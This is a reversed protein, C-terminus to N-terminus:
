SAPNFSQIVVGVFYSLIVVLTAVGVHESIIPLPKAKTIRAIYLNIGVLLVVGWVMSIITANKLSLFFFPVAFTLTFLLVSIFTFFTTLWIEKHTHKREGNEMESEESVHIAFADSMGDAIAMVLIGALVARKDGTASNLGVIMGLATIVSTTLGFSVGTTAQHSYKFDQAV